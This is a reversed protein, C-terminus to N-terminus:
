PTNVGTKNPEISDFELENVGKTRIKQAPTFVATVSFLRVSVWSFLHDWDAELRVRTHNFPYVLSQIVKLERTNKKTEPESTFLATHFRVAGFWFFRSQIQDPSFCTFMRAKWIHICGWDCWQGHSVSVIQFLEGKHNKKEISINTDLYCLYM